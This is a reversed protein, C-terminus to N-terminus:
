RSLEGIVDALEVFSDRMRDVITDVADPDAAWTAWAHHMAALSVITVLQARSELRQPEAALAPDQVALRRAVIAVLERQFDQFTQMRMVTLHPYDSVLSRRLAIVEQDQLAESAAATMMRGLDDLLGGHGDVFEEIDAATPHTPGEGVLAAEKSPFYNFFTRPSIDADHSIDDITVSELGRDKVLRLAALQIARRTALRKRERLGLEAADTM